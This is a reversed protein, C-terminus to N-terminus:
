SRGHRQGTRIMVYRSKRLPLPCCTSPGSVGNFMRSVSIHWNSGDTNASCDRRRDDLSAYGM